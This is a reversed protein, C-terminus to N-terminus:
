WERRVFARVAANFGAPDEQNSLHGVGSLITLTSGPIAAHVREALAPPTRTDEAGVIVATPVAIQGLSPLSDPREAMARATAALGMAPTAAVIGDLLPRLAPDRAASAPAIYGPVLREVAAASGEREVLRAISERAERQEPGDAEARTDALILGALREPYRRAFALGIYGGLSLGCYIVRDIGLHDLLARQDDAFLEISYPGPAVESAGHGRLDPAILWGLDTLGALQHGWTARSLPFGHVFLIAPRSGPTGAEDWSLRVGNLVAEMAGGKEGSQGTCEDCNGVACCEAYKM